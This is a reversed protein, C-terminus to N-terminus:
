LAGRRTATVVLVLVVVIVVVARGYFHRGHCKSESCDLIVYPRLVAFMPCLGSVVYKVFVEWMQYYFAMEALGHNQSVGPTQIDGDQDSIHLLSLFSILRPGTLTDDVTLM